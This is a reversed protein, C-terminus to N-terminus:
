KARGSPRIAQQLTLAANVLGIHTFAQPFNGLFAGTAPDVEEAYLGVDNAMACLKDFLAEAEDVRGQMALCQVLWFSCLLFAGEGGTEDNRHRYVLGDRSLERQVAEITAVMRPESAGEFGIIPLRLVSADLEESDLAVAYSDLRTSFGRQRVEDAILTAAQRYGEQGVDIHGSKALALVGALGAWAMAKSHVFQRPPGRTEWIGSDPERWHETIYDALRRLFSKEDGSLSAGQQWCLTAAGLVEGYIDLQFQEHAANGVRVPRSDRYGRLHDLEHEPLAHKGYVSYVVQLEPRTLHTAHLLWQLFALAEETMGLGLFANVTYSADRLWCFRYDWNYPAGVREPLSTTPAAIIAGSPAYTLLKLALASRYVAQIHPGRYHIGHTWSRWYENTTAILNDLAALPPYVAPAEESFALVFDYTQGQVLTFGDPPLDAFSSTSESKIALTALGTGLEFAWCASGRRKLNPTTRGFDLKPSFEHRIEISGSLCEVRRILMTQPLLRGRKYTESAAFFLDTVQAEGSECQFHTVLVNSSEAYSRSANFGAAPAIRWRGGRDPDLLAAFIAPSDFRPWCLWDISGARSVLAASRCDGILAYDEIPTFPESM